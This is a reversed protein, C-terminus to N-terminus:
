AREAPYQEWGSGIQVDYYQRFIGDSQLLEEPSGDEVIRGDALVLVRDVGQISSLRHTVIVVTRGSSAHWIAEQIAHESEPDQASAVEDLLLISPNLLLARALAVRQRQGASLAVGREGVLTHYGHPTELIFEHANALRAAQQVQDVTATPDAYRINELITDDLLVSDQSVLYVNARLSPLDLEAIPDHDFLLRGRTPSLLRVMLALLTSKGSGSPGVIATTQGAVISLSINSLAPVNSNYVFTVDDLVIAESLGSFRRSGSNAPGISTVNEASDRANEVLDILNRVSNIHGAVRYRAQNLARIEPATRLLAYIFVATEAFSMGMISSGIYVIFLGTGILAPETVLRIQSARYILRATAAALDNLLVSMNDSDRSESRALKVERVAQIRETSLSTINRNLVSIDEGSKRSGKLWFQGVLSIALLVGFTVLAMRWSILLLLCGYLTAMISRTLLERVATLYVEARHGDQLMTSFLQGSRHSYHFPMSAYMVNRYVATRLDAVLETAMHASVYDHAYMFLQAILIMIFVAIFVAETSQGLGTWDLAWDVAAGLPGAPTPASTGEISQAAPLLLGISAGQSLVAAIALMLVLSLRSLTFSPFAYLSRLLRFRKESTKTQTINDQNLYPVM